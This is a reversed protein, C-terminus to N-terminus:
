LTPFLYPPNLFVPFPEPPLVTQGLPNDEECSLNDELAMETKQFDKISEYRGVMNIVTGSRNIWIQRGYQNIDGVMNLAIVIM